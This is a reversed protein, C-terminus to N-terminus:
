SVLSAQCIWCSCPLCRWLIRGLLSHGYSADRTYIQESNSACYTQVNKGSNLQQRLLQYLWYTHQHMPTYQSLVVGVWWHRTEGSWLLNTVNVFAYKQYCGYTYNTQAYIIIQALNLQNFQTSANTNCSQRVYYQSWGGRGGGWMILNIVHMTKHTERNQRSVTARDFMVNIRRCTFFCIHSNTWFVLFYFLFTDRDTKFNCWTIM